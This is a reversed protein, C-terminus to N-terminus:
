QTSVRRSAFFGIEGEKPRMRAVIDDDTTGYAYLRRYYQELWKRMIEDKTM